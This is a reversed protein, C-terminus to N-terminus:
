NAAPRQGAAGDDLKSKVKGDFRRFKEGNFLVQLSTRARLIMNNREQQMAALDPSVRPPEQGHRIKGGPHKARIEAIVKKAREDQQQVEDSCAIAVQILSEAERANIDLEKQLLQSLRQPPMKKDQLFKIKLFLFEYPMHDPIQRDPFKQAEAQGLRSPPTASSLVTVRPRSILGIAGIALIAFAFVPMMRRHKM